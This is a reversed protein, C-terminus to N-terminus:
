RSGKEIERAAKVLVDNMRTQWGAGRERFVAVAHRDLRLKVEIKTEAAKPRGRPRTLATYIAPPLAESAPRMQDLMDDSPERSDPNNAISTQLRAEDADSLMQVSRRAKTM